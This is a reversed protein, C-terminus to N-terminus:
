EYKLYNQKKVKKECESNFGQMVCWENIKNDFAVMFWECEAWWNKVCYICKYKSYKPKKVKRWCEGNRGQM